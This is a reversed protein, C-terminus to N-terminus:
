RFGLSGSAKKVQNKASHNTSGVASTSLAVVPSLQALFCITTRLGQFDVLFYWCVSPSDRAADTIAM